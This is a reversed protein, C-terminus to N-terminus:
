ADKDNKNKDDAQLIGMAHLSGRYLAKKAGADDRPCEDPAPLTLTGKELAVGILALAELTKPAKNLEKIIAAENAPAANKSFLYNFTMPLCAKFCKQHHQNIFCEPNNVYAELHKSLKRKKFGKGIIFQLLGTQKVEKYDDERMKILSYNELMELDSELFGLPKKKVPTGFEKLFAYAMSWVIHTVEITEAEHIAPTSHKGPMPLFVVNSKPSAVTIRDADQPKFTLRNEGVALIGLYNKVSEPITRNLAADPNDKTVKEKGKDKGAVPDVAFINIDNIGLIESIKNAIILATVAGRSWGILNVRTPVPDLNALVVIAHRVNDSVGHGTAQAITENKEFWEKFKVHKKKERNKSAWDYQGALKGDKTKSGVGDLMLWNDYEKGDTSHGFFNVIEEDASDRNSGTGHCFITFVNPM